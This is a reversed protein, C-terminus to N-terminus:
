QQIQNKLYTEMVLILGSPIDPFKETEVINFNKQLYNKEAGGKEIASLIFSLEGKWLNLYKGEGM